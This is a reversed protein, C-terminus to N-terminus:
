ASSRTGVHGPRFRRGAPSVPHRRLQGPHRAPRLARRRSRGAGATAIPRGPRGPLLGAGDRLPEVRKQLEECEDATGICALKAGAAALGESMALGLGRRGGTVLAVRGTIDFMRSQEERQM